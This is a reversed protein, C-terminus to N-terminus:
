LDLTTSNKCTSVHCCPISPLPCDFINTTGSLDCAQAICLNKPFPGTFSNGQGYFAQFLNERVGFGSPITGTLKNSDLGIQQLTFINALSEPITGTIANRSLWLYQLGGLDGLPDLPGSLQNDQLYITQLGQLGTLNPFPGTLLNKDFGFQVLNQLSGLTQPITGYLSNGSLYLFQVNQLGVIEDPITGRLNNGQVVLSWVQYQTNGIPRCKVGYWNAICPDTTIDWQHIWNKGGTSVYLAQLAAIEGKGTQCSVLSLLFVSLVVFIVIPAAYNM